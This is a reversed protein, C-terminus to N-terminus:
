DSWSILSDIDHQLLIIDAQSDIERFIKTDDAFLYLFTDKDVVGPLDNIYKVFLLPGLVSGQPIGSTVPATDSLTDNICVQQTRNALFSKIWGM